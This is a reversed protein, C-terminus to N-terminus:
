SPSQAGWYGRPAFTADVATELMGLDCLLDLVTYRRRILRAELITKKHLARGIDVEMPDTIVGAATLLSRMGTAGILFGQLRARLIGWNAKLHRLRRRLAGDDVYKAEIEVLSREAIHSDGFAREVERIDDPLVPRSAVLADVDIHALDQQLLWDYLALVSLTGLAVCAGHAVPVGQFSQDRMEWLHAIQHDAGSAPRSSGHFEMALGTIVLGAFLAGLAQPQGNRVAGAQALWPRLHDHVLPWAVDDIAEIGLMDAVIWDAGAAVKGALDGYGWGAMEGPAQAVVDMDAVLVRPPVCAITHKFGQDSLPSGASAYGDMSAATAVCVYPKELRHAAYKVLDNIVGSGVAVIPGEHSELRPLLADANAVSPKLRPVADYVYCDGHIGRARLVTGLHEGAAQYTNGDAILMVGDAPDGIHDRILDPVRELNGSDIDIADISKSRAVAPAVVTDIQQQWSTM